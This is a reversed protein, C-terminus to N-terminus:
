RDNNKLHDKIGTSLPRVYKQFLGGILLIEKKGYNNFCYNIIQKEKRKDKPLKTNSWPTKKYYFNWSDKLEHNCNKYWPRISYFSSTFHVIVPDKKALTIEEESYFKYPKRYMYIEKYTLDYFISVLNYKPNFPLVLDKLVYNLIGQDGQSVTGNKQNIYNIALKEIGYNRWKRLDILMVGSNFIISDSNMQFNDYYYKDFADTLVAAINNQLKINWLERISSLVLTDSDLYLIKDLNDDLLTGIFLRSFQSYSGRDSKVNIGIKEKISDVDIWYLKANKFKWCIQSIKNKNSQKIKSGLITISISHADTNNILLSIISTGLVPIFKNDTAYVVNYDSEM